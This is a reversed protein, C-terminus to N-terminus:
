FEHSEDYVKLDQSVNNKSDHDSRAGMVSELKDLKLDINFFKSELIQASTM